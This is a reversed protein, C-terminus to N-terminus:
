FFFYKESEFSSEFLLFPFAYKFTLETKLMMLINLNM